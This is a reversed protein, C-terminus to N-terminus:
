PATTTFSHIGTISAVVAGANRLKIQWYYKTSDDLGLTGWNLQNSADPTDESQYVMTSITKGLYLGYTESQAGAVAGDTLKLVDVIIDAKTETDIASPGVATAYLALAKAFMGVAFNCGSLARSDRQASLAFATLIPAEAISQNYFAVVSAMVARQAIQGATSPNAPVVYQRATKLGKWGSFVMSKAFQGRADLSLMPGKLIAM